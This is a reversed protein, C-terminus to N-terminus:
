PAKQGAKATGNDRSDTDAPALTEPGPHAMADPKRGAAARNAPVLKRRAKAVQVATVVPAKNGWANRAYTAVAAIQDDTLKWAFTPMAVGTPHASTPTSQAGTLLVHLVSSPDTQQLV